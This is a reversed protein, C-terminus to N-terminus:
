RPRQRPMRSGANRFSELTHRTVIPRALRRGRVFEHVLRITRGQVSWSGTSRVERKFRAEVGEQYTFSRDGEIWLQRVFWDWHGEFAAEEESLGLEAIREDSSSWRQMRGIGDDAGVLCRFDPTEAAKPPSSANRDLWASLVAVLGFMGLALPLVVVTLATDPTPNRSPIDM